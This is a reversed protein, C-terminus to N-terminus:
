PKRGPTGRKTRRKVVQVLVGVGVLIAGLLVLVLPDNWQGASM